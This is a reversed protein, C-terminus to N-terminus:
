RAKRSIFETITDILRMTDPQSPSPV